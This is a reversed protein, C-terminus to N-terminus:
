GVRPPEQRKSVAIPVVSPTRVLRNFRITSRDRM